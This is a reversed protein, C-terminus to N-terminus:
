REAQLEIQKKKSEAEALLKQKRIVEKKAKRAAESTSSTISVAKSSVIEVMQGVTDVQSSMAASAEPRGTHAGVTAPAAEVKPVKAPTGTPVTPGSSTTNTVTLSNDQSEGAPSFGTQATAM